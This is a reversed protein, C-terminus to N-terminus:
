PYKTLNKIGFVYEATGKKAAVGYTFEVTLRHIEVENAAVLIANETASVEVDYTSGTPTFSTWDKIQTGAGADDIRYRGASPTVAAGTEDTFALTVTCSSKENVLEM